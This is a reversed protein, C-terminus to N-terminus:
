CSKDASGDLKRKFATLSLADDLNSFKGEFLISGRRALLWVGRRLYRVGECGLLSRNLLSSNSHLGLAM